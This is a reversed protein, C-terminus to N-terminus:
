NEKQAPIDKENKAGKKLTNLAASKRARDRDTRETYRERAAFDLTIPPASPYFSTYLARILRM